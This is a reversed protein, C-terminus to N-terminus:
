RVVGSFTGSGTVSPAIVVTYIVPEGGIVEFFYITQGDQTVTVAVNEPTKASGVQYSWGTPITETVGVYSLGSADYTITVNVTAGPSVQTASFSRTVDTSVSQSEVTQLSILPLFAMAGAIFLAIFMVIGVKMTLPKRM